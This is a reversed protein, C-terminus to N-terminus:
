EGCDLCQEGYHKSLLCPSSSSIKPWRGGERRASPGYFLCHPFPFPPTTSLLLSSYPPTHPSLSPPLPSPLPPLPSFLLPLSLSLSLVIFSAWHVHIYPGCQSNASHAIHMFLLYVSLEEEVTVHCVCLCVCLVCVCCVCVACVNHVCDCICVACM